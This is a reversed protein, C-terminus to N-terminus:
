IHQGLPSALLSAVLSALLSEWDTNWFPEWFPAWFPAWFSHGIRAQACSRSMSQAWDENEHSVNHWKRTKLIPCLSQACIPCLTRPSTPLSTQPHRQDLRNPCVPGRIPCVLGELRRLWPDCFHSCIRPGSLALWSVSGMAAVLFDSVYQAGSPPKRQQNM